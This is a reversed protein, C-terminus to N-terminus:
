AEKRGHRDLLLLFPFFRVLNGATDHWSEPQTPTFCAKVTSINHKANLAFPFELSLRFPKGHKQCLDEKGEALSHLASFLNNARSACGDTCKWEKKTAM